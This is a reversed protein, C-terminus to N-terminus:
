NMWEKLEDASLRQFNVPLNDVEPKIFYVNSAVAHDIFEFGAGKGAKRKRKGLNAARCFSEGKPVAMASGGM